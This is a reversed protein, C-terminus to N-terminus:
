EKPNAGVLSPTNDGYTSSAVSTLVSVVGAGLSVGVLQSLDTALVNMTDAAILAVLAQAVTKIAREAADRWFGVTWMDFWGKNTLSILVTSLNLM